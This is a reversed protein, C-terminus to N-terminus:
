CRYKKSSVSSLTTKIRTVEFAYQFATKYKNAADDFTLHPSIMLFSTLTMIFASFNCSDYNEYDDREFDDDDEESCYM